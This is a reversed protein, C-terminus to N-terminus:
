RGPVDSAVRSLRKASWAGNLGQLIDGEVHGEYIRGGARFTIFDGHLYADEVPAAKGGTSLTGSLMQYSQRLVLEGQPLRWRGAAKAPVIYLYATCWDECNGAAEDVADATWGDIEFGNVVIRTGPRLALFKPVLQNLNETLLFLALVTARSIDAEYMDGQVFRAKDAVGAREAARRAYEVLDPNYEVGLSRAGRKAAAIINRGDGSGLDMVFDRPTVEAMDLMKEVLAHPTPVWVVDRGEQGVEPEYVPGAPPAATEAAGALPILWSLAILLILRHFHKV